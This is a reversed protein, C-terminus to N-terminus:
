LLLLYNETQNVNKFHFCSALCLCKGLRLPPHLNVPPLQLSYKLCLTKFTILYIIIKYIFYVYCMEKKAGKVSNGNRSVNMFQTSWKWFVQQQIVLNFYVTGEMRWPGMITVLHMWGVELANIEKYKTTM